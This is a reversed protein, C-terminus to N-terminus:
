NICCLQVKCTMILQGMVVKLSDKQGSEVVREFALVECGMLPCCVVTRQHEM